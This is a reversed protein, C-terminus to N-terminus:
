PAQHRMPPPRTGAQQRQCHLGKPLDGFRGLRPATQVRVRSGPGASARGMLREACAFPLPRSGRLARGQAPRYGRRAPACASRSAGSVPPPTVATVAAKANFDCKGNGRASRPDAMRSGLRCPASDPGSWSTSAGAPALVASRRRRRSSPEAYSRRIRHHVSIRRHATRLSAITSDIPGAFSIRHHRRRGGGPSIPSVSDRCPRFVHARLRVSWSMRARSGRACAFLCLFARARARAGLSVSVSLPAPACERACATSARAAARVCAAFCDASVRRAM